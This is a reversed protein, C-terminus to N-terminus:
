SSFQVQAPFTPSWLSFVWSWAQPHKLGALFGCSASVWPQPRLSQIVRRSVSFDSTWSSPVWPQSQLSHSMAPFIRPWAPAYTWGRSRASPGGGGYKYDTVKGRALASEPPPTLDSWTHGRTKSWPVEMRTLRGTLSVWVWDSGRRPFHIKLLRLCPHSISIKDWNLHRLSWGLPNLNADLIRSDERVLTQGSNRRDTATTTWDSLWTRSQSGM